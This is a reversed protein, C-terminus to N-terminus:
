GLNHWSNGNDDNENSDGNDNNDDENSGDNNNNDDENSEDNNDNDNDNDDNDECKGCTRKCSNEVFQCMGRQQYFECNSKYDKCDTEQCFGCTQKCIMQMTQRLRENQCQHELRTCSVRDRCEDQAFVRRCAMVFVIMALINMLSSTM